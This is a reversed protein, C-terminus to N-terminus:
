ISPCFVIGCCTFFVYAGTMSKHRFWKMDLAEACVVFGSVVEDYDILVLSIFSYLLTSYHGRSM